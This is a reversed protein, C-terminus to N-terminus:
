ISELSFQQKFYSQNSFMTKEFNLIDLDLRM